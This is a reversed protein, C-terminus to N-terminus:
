VFRSVEIELMLLFLLFQPSVESGRYILFFSNLVMRSLDKESIKLFASEESDKELFGLLCLVTGNLLNSYGGISPMMEGNQLLLGVAQRYGFSPSTARSLLM